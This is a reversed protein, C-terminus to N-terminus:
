PIKKGALFEKALNFSTEKVLVFRVTACEKWRNDLLIIKALAELIEGLPFNTNQDTIVVNTMLLTGLIHESLTTLDESKIFIAEHKSIRLTTLSNIEVSLGLEPNHQPKPMCHNCFYVGQNCDLCNM